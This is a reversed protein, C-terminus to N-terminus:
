VRKSVSVRSSLFPRNCLVNGLRIGIGIAEVDFHPLTSLLRLEHSTGLRKGISKAVADFHPKACFM